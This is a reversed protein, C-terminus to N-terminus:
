DWLGDYYKAFLRRGNAIRESTEIRNPNDNELMEVNDSFAFIMEDLVYDWRDHVTKDNERSNFNRLKFPVDINDVFPSGHKVEKLKLLSKYIIPRLTDDLSWVDYEDIIIFERNNALFENISDVMEALRTRPRTVMNAFEELTMPSPANFDTEEFKGFILFNSVKDVLASDKDKWFLLKETIDLLNISRYKLTIVKM